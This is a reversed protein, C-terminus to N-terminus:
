RLNQNSANSGVEKGSIENAQRLTKYGCVKCVWSLWLLKGTEIGAWDDKPKREFTNRNRCSPCFIPDTM